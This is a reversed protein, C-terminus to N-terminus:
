WVVSLVEPSDLVRGLCLCLDGMVEREEVKGLCALGEVEGVRDWLDWVKPRDLVGCRDWVKDLCHEWLGRVLDVELVRGLCPAM